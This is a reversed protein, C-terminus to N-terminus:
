QGSVIFCFSLLSGIQNHNVLSGNYYTTMIREFLSKIIHLYLNLLQEPHLCHVRNCNKNEFSRPLLSESGGGGDNQPM